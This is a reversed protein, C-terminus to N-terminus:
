KRNDIPNAVGAQRMVNSVNQLDDSNCELHFEKKENGSGGLYNIATGLIAGGTSALLLPGTVPNAALALYGGGVGAAGLGGVVISRLFGLKTPSNNKEETFSVKIQRSIRTSKESVDSLDFFIREEGKGIQIEYSRDKKTYIVITINTPDKAKIPIQKKLEHLYEM